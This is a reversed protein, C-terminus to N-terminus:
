QIFWTYALKSIQLCVEVNLAMIGNTLIWFTFFVKVTLIAAASNIQEFIYQNKNIYTKNWSGNAATLSGSVILM